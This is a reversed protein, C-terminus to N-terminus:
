TAPTRPTRPTRRLGSTLRLLLAVLVFGGFGAATAIWPRGSVIQGASVGISMGLITFLLAKGLAVQRLLLLATIPTLVAGLAAGIGATAVVSGGPVAVSAARLALGALAVLGGSLGAGLFAGTGALAVSVGAVRRPVISRETSDM